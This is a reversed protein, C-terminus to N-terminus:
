RQDAAPAIGETIAADALALEAAQPDDADVRGAPRAAHAIALENVAQLQAHGLQIPLRQRFNGDVIRSAEALDDLEGLFVQLRWTGWVPYSAHRLWRVTRVFKTIKTGDFAFFTNNRGCQRPYLRRRHPKDNTGREMQAEKTKENREIADGQLCPLLIDAA